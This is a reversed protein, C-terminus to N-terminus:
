DIYDNLKDVLILNKPDSWTQCISIRHEVTEVHEMGHIAQKGETPKLGLDHLSCLNDETLFTCKNIPIIHGSKTAIIGQIAKPAILEYQKGDRVDLFITTKLNDEFGHQILKDVDQPTPFCPSIHCMMKCQECSCNSETYKKM